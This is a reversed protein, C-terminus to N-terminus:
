FRRRYFNCHFFSFHISQIICVQVTLLSKSDIADPQLIIQTFNEYRCLSIQTFSADKDNGNELKIPLAAFDILESSKANKIAKHNPFLNNGIVGSNKAEDFSNQYKPEADPKGIKKARPRAFEFNKDKNSRPRKPQVEPEHENDAGDFDGVYPANPLDISTRNLSATSSYSSNSRRRIIMCDDPRSKYIYDWSESTKPGRKKGVAAGSGGAGGGGGSGGSKPTVNKKNANQPQKQPSPEKAEKAKTAKIKVAVPTVNCPEVKIAKTRPIKSPSTGDIAKVNNNNGGHLSNLMNAAGEDGLLKDIESTKKKKPAPVAALTVEESTSLGDDLHESDKKKRPRKAPGAGSTHALSAYNIATEPADPDWIIKKKIIRSRRFPTPETPEVITQKKQPRIEVVIETETTEDQKGEDWDSVLSNVLAVCKPKKALKAERAAKVSPNLKPRGKKKKPLSMIQEMAIEREEEATLALKPEGNTNGASPLSLEYHSVSANALGDDDGGELIAILDDSNALPTKIHNIILPSIVSADSTILERPIEITGASPTPIPKNPTVISDNHTNTKNNTKPTLMKNLVTKTENALIAIQKPKRYTVAKPLDITVTDSEKHEEDENVVELLIPEEEFEDEETEIPEIEDSDNSQTQKKVTELTTLTKNPFDDDNFPHNETIERKIAKASPEPASHEDLDENFDQAIEDAISKNTETTCLIDESLGSYELKSTDGNTANEDHDKSTEVIEATTTAM